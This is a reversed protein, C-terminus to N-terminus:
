YDPGEADVVRPPGLADAPLGLTDLAARLQQERRDPPMGAHGLLALRGANDANQLLHLKLRALAIQAPNPDVVDIRTARTRAILYALTCGGSAIMIIRAAPPLREVVWADLLPDERVQAFAVPLQAAQSVWPPLPEDM